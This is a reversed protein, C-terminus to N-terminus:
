RQSFLFIALGGGIVLIVVIGLLISISADQRTDDLTHELMARAFSLGGVLGLLAGILVWWMGPGTLSWADPGRHGPLFFVWGLYSLLGAAGGIVIALLRDGLSDGVAAYTDSGTATHRAPKAGRSRPSAKQWSSQDNM